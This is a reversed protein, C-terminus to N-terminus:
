HFLMSSIMVIFMIVAYARLKDGVYLVLLLIFVLRLISRIIEITARVFFDENATILGQFPVSLITFSTAFLTFHLVFLADPIKDIVINLYNNIYWSGIPEGIILL